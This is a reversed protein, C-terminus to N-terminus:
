RSRWSTTRRILCYSITISRRHAEPAGAIACPVSCVCCREFVAVHCDSNNRPDPLGQEKLGLWLGNGFKCLANSDAGREARDAARGGARRRRVASGHM